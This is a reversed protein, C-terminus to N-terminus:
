RLIDGKFKNVVDMLLPHDSDELDENADNKEVEKVSGRTFSISCKCKFFDSFVDTIFNQDKLLSNFSLLSIFICSILKM